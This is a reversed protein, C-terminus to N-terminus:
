GPSVVRVKKSGLGAGGHSSETAESSNTAALQQHGSGPAVGLMKRVREVAKSEGAAWSDRKTPGFVGTGSGTSGRDTSVYGARGGRAKQAAATRYEERRPGPGCDHRCGPTACGGESLAVDSLWAVQCATHAGHGCGQCWSWLSTGHPRTIINNGGGLKLPNNFSIYEEVWERPPEFSECITCPLQPTQCRHCRQNDRYPNEYPKKCTFCYVNIFTENQAYEYVSPYEGVCLLRVEAANIFMQQRQLLENYSKFILERQQYDLYKDCSAFLNHLKHLFHAASQIDAPSTTCYYEIAKKLLNQASWPKAEAEITSPPSDAPTALERVTKNGAEQPPVPQKEKPQSDVLFPLPSSPRILHMDDGNASGESYWPEEPSPDM